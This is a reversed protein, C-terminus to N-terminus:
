GSGLLTKCKTLQQFERAIARLDQRLCTPFGCRVICDGCHGHETSGNIGRSMLSGVM